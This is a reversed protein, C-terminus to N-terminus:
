GKQSVMSMKKLQVSLIISKMLRLDQLEQTLILTLGSLLILVEKAMVKSVTKM